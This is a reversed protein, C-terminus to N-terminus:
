HIHTQSQRTSPQGPPRRPPNRASHSAGLALLPTTPGTQWPPRQPADPDTPVTQPPAGAPRAPPAPDGSRPRRCRHSRQPNPARCSRPASTSTHENTHARHHAYGRKAPPSPVLHGSAASALPYSRPATQPEQPSPPAPTGNRAPDWAAGPAPIATARQPRGTQRCCSAPPPSPWGPGVRRRANM